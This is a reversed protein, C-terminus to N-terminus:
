EKTLPRYFVENCDTRTLNWGALKIGLFDDEKLIYDLREESWDLLQCLQSYPLINWAHRLISIYGRTMWEDLWKQQGLGMDKALQTVTQEDTKLVEALRSAPVTEWLRFILAQFKTPFHKIDLTQGKQIEPLM